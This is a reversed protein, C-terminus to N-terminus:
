RAPRRHRLSDQLRRPQDAAHRRRQEDAGDLHPQGRRADARVGHHQLGAADRVRHRGVGLHRHELLHRRLVVVAYRLPTRDGTDFSAWAPKNAIGFALVQGDPDNATPQFSYPKGATVTTAPTGSITPARNAAVVTIAFAPLSVTDVGDSVSIVINSYTGANAVAPTGSLRGTTTDFSAWAPKNAIGFRLTQRDADSATPQFAYAQGSTVTSAPTGSITPPTNGASTDPPPVVTITFMPLFTVDKGDGVSVLVDAYTGQSGTPPTGHLRGTTSDFALFSPANVVYFHLPDGDADSATPRFDYAQGVQLSTAPTGPM